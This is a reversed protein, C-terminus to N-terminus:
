AAAVAAPEVEAPRLAADLAAYFARPELPKAVFGTMGSALYTHVAAEHTAGTVAIVPTDRNPGETQRLRRVVERGDLDPLNVDMLVLDFPQQALRALADDGGTAFDACLGLPELLIGIARRVLPQDDVVLVRAGFATQPALPVEQVDLIEPAMAPAPGLLVSVSFRSGHLSSRVTLDGGMLLTLERSISLGLGTGGELGHGHQQFPTFLRAIEEPSMGMGTDAVDVSLRLAGGATETCGVGIAVSGTPRTFKVANSVLNNLVQRLRIPDGVARAPLSELGDLTLVLGAADTKPTWFRRLELLLAAPSFVQQAVDMCGAEIKALDLLDDLLRRMMRGAEGVMRAADADQPQPLRLALADAAALIATLPTRLEHSVCAAYRTKADTAAEAQARRTEALARAKAEHRGLRELHRWVIAVGFVFIVEALAFAPLMPDAALAPRAIFPGLVLLLAHPAGSASFALGSGRSLMMVNVLCGGLVLAAAAPGLLGPLNWLMLSGSAYALSVLTIGGFGAVVWGRGPATREKRFRWLVALEVLQASVNVAAWIWLWKQLWPEKLVMAAGLGIAIIIVFRCPAQARREAANFTLAEAERAWFSSPASPM